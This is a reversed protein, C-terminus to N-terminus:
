GGGGEGPDGVDDLLTTQVELLGGFGEYAGGTQGWGRGEAGFFYSKTRQFFVKM